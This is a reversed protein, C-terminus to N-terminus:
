EEKVLKGIATTVRPANRTQEYLVDLGLAQLYEAGLAQWYGLDDGQQQIKEKALAQAFLRQAESYNMLRNETQGCEPCQVRYGDKVRVPFVLNCKSCLAPSYGFVSMDFLQSITKLLDNSM